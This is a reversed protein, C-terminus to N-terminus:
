KPEEGKTLASCDLRTKGPSWSLIKGAIAANFAEVATAIDDPLDGDEPLEDGFFDEELQRAYNPECLVPRLDIPDIPIDTDYDFCAELFSDLDEYYEDTAESFIMGQAWPAAPRALYRELDAKERCADCKLYHKETPAGCTECPRHTCGAYRAIRENDGYFIGTRSVWGTLTVLKAAEPSDFMVVPEQKM